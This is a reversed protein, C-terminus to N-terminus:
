VRRFKDFHLGAHSNGFLAGVANVIYCASPIYGGRVLMAESQKPKFVIINWAMLLWHFLPPLGRVLMAESQKPKFVIINWAM